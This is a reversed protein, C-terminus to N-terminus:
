SAPRDSHRDMEEVIRRMAGLDDETHHLAADRCVTPELANRVVLCDAYRAAGWTDRLGTRKM